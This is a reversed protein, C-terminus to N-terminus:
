FGTARGHCWRNITGWANPNGARSSIVCNPPIQGPDERFRFDKIITTLRSLSHAFTDSRNGWCLYRDLRDYLQPLGLCFVLSALTMIGGGVVPGLKWVVFPYLAYDFAYDTVNWVLLGSALEGARRTLRQPDIPIM